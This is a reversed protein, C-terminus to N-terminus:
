VKAKAKLVDPVHLTAVADDLHSAINIYRQTTQYAKHRMLKQLTEASLRPANQSAFARRFDHFGYVHCFRSHTHSRHCPLHISAAEQIDAFADYLARESHNWPFVRPDFGPLKKLHDIVVPHLKVREDRKGKNDEARTIIQGADLDLDDRRVALLEGIRWGTMYAMVLLSRWWDAASFPFGDPRKASECAGYIAAFHEPTVFVPLKGPERLMRFRPVEPLFGWEKAIRLVARLHRLDKNVTAPSVLDGERLGDEQRRKAVFEDITATKITAMRKPKVLREFADLSQRTLRRNGAGMGELIKTAFEERFEEWTRKSVDRYTGTLLEAEVRTREKEAISKGRSGPGCSKCRRKGEPDIWSVYWAAKEGHKKVMKPDQHVWAKAM